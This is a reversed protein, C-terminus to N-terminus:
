LSPDMVVQQTAPRLELAQQTIRQKLNVPEDADGDPDDDREDSRRSRDQGELRLDQVREVAVHPGHRLCGSFQQRWWLQQGPQLGGIGGPAHGRERHPAVGRAGGADGVRGLLRRALALAGRRRAPVDAIDVRPGTTNGFRFAIAALREEAGRSRQMAPQDGITESIAVEGSRMPAAVMTSTNRM